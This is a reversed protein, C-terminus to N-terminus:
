VAVPFSVFSQITKTAKNFFLSLRRSSTTQKKKQVVRSLVTNNETLLTVLAATKM